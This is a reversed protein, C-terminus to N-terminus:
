EAAPAFIIVATFAIGFTLCIMFTALDGMNIGGRLVM